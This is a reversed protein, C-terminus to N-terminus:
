PRGGQPAAAVPPKDAPPADDNPPPAQKGLSQLYAILAVM